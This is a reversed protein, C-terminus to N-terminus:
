GTRLRGPQDILEAVRQPRRVPRPDNVAVDAGSLTRSSSSPLAYRDSKPIATPSSSATTRRRCGRGRATSTASREVPRITSTSSSRAASGSCTARTTSRAVPPSARWGSRRCRRASRSRCSDSSRRDARRVVERAQADTRQRAIRVLAQAGEVGDVATSKKPRSRSTSRSTARSPQAARPAAEDRHDTRAAAALRAGHLGPQERRDPAARNRQRTRPERDLHGRRWM